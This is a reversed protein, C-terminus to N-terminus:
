KFYYAMTRSLEYVQKFFVRKNVIEDGLVMWVMFLIIFFRKPMMINQFYLGAGDNYKGIELIAVVKANFCNMLLM